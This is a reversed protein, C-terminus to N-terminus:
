RLPRKLNRKSFVDDSLGPAFVTNSFELITQHSDKLNTMNVRTPQWYKGKYVKFNHRIEYKVRTNSDDFYHIENITKDTKHIRMEIKAYGVKADPKPTLEIRWLDGADGIYKATYSKLYRTTATDEYTMDSGMFSQNRVHAAIRRIKKFAPLYVFNTYEDMALFAMGRESPPDTFVLLRKEGKQRLELVRISKNGAKDILTMKMTFSMDPFNNAQDDAGKVIDYGNPLDEAIVGSAWVAALLVLIAILGNRM